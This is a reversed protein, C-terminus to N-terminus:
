RNLLQNLVTLRCDTFHPPTEGTLVSKPIRKINPSKGITRTPIHFILRGDKEWGHFTYNTRRKTQHLTEGITLIARLHTYFSQIM